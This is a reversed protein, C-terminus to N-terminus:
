TAVQFSTMHECRKRHTSLDVPSDKAEFCKGNSFGNDVERFSSMKIHKPPPLLLKWLPLCLILCFCM